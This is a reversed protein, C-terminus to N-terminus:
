QSAKDGRGRQAVEAASKSVGASELNDAAEQLLRLDVGSLKKLMDLPLPGPLAGVRVIQRRLINLGVLLPSPVLQWGNPTPVLKEAEATADIMDGATAERLEAETYTDPGITLGPELKVPVSATKNSM